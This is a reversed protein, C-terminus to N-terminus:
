PREREAEPKSSDHKMMNRKLDSVISGRAAAMSPSTCKGSSSVLHLRSNVCIDMETAPYGLISHSVYIYICIYVNISM